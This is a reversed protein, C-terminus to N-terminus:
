YKNMGPSSTGYGPPLHIETDLYVYGSLQLPSNLFSEQSANTPVATCTQSYNTPQLVTTPPQNRKHDENSPRTVTALEMMGM